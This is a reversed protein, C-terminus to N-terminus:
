IYLLIGIVIFFGAIQCLYWKGLKNKKKKKKNKKAGEPVNEVDEIVAAKDNDDEHSGEIIETKLAAM